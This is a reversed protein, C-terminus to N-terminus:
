LSFSSSNRNPSNSLADLIDLCFDSLTDDRAGMVVIGDGSQTRKIVQSIIEKRHKFYYAQLGEKQLPIIIDQSSINKTATGGVFYIEPMFLIDQKRLEEKFIQIFGEKLLRTPGFGHPQFISILRPFLLKLTTLTAKIKDPNHAYDDIVKIGKQEGIFQLRRKVGKFKSLVESIEKLNIGLTKVVAIAALANYFNHIGLLPLHFLTDEIIFSSKELSLEKPFIQAKKKIGFTISKANIKMCYPCDANLILTEQTNKAFEAFIVELEDLPKHDLTINTIVGITPKYISSSGDSEDAEIVILDSSGNVSNNDFDLMIGGNIITPNMGLQHLIFGIMATTTTKGSTGTIAIRQKASKFIEALLESRHIIPINKEKSKKIELNDDEIATSIVVKDVPAELGSGDQNFLSIKLSTLKDFLRAKEGRDYYRDSGSVNMGRAVLIQALASMGSGGIGVFHFSNKKIGV